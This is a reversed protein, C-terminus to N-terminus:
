RWDLVTEEKETNKLGGGAFDVGKRGGKTAEGGGKDGGGENENYFIRGGGLAEIAELSDM